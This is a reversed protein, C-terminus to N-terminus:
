QWHAPAIVATVPGTRTVNAATVKKCSSHPSHSASHSHSPTTQHLAWRIHVGGPTIPAERRPCSAAVAQQRSVRLSCNRRKASRRSCAAALSWHWLCVLWGTTSCTSCVRRVSCRRRTERVLCVAEPQQRPTHLSARIRSLIHPGVWRFISTQLQAVVVCAGPVRQHAALARAVDGGRWCVSGAEAGRQLQQGTACTSHVGMMLELARM